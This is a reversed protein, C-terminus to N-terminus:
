GRPGYLEALLAPVADDACTNDALFWGLEEAMEGATQYRRNPDRRLARRVIAHTGSPLLALVEATPKQLVNRMTEFEDKGAFVRRGTLMEALVIGLSFVDARRDVEAGQIQEPALYGLHGALGAPPGVEKAPRALSAAKAIGFDLIKVGGSWLLMVNGPSVDRHVIGGPEGGLTATHAHHLARAIERAVFVAVPPPLMLGRARAAHLVAALDRGDLYEMAMFYAGEIQGFDFVRIINPHDLLASIRAEDCFMQVFRPSDSRDPRIRKIVFGDKDRKPDGGPGIARFVEAMGGRGIREVLRYRGFRDGAPEPERTSTHNSAEPVVSGASEGETGLLHL